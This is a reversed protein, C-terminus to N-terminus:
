TSKIMKNNFRDITAKWNSSPLSSKASSWRPPGSPQHCNFHKAAASQVISKLHPDQDGMPNPMRDHPSTTYKQIEDAVQQSVQTLLIKKTKTPGGTARPKKAYSPKHPDPNNQRWESLEHCQEQTLKKYEHHKNYHLHVGTKWISPKLNNTAITTTYGNNAEALSILASGQKVGTARKKALADYPLLYSIAREFNNQLGNPSNDMKVSAMTAQLGADACQIADILFGVRSHENPM